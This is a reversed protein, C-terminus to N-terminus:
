EEITVTFARTAVAVVRGFLITGSCAILVRICQDIGTKPTIVGEDVTTSTVLSVSMGQEAPLREGGAFAIGSLVSFLLHM